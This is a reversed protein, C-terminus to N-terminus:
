SELWRPAKGQPSAGGHRNCRKGGKLPPAEGRDLDEKKAGWIEKGDVSQGAAYSINM